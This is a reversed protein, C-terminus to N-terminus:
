RREITNFVGASITTIAGSFFPMVTTGDTTGDSTLFASHAGAVDTNGAPSLWVAFGYQNGTLSVEDNIDRIDFEVTRGAGTATLDGEIYVDVSDGKKIVVGPEFFSVYEKNSYPSIITPYSVDNVVAAINAIDGMGASGSQTWVIISLTIDEPSNATIRIGSFKIDKENIYRTRAGTPDFQSLIATAGGVALTSNITHMPGRLPLIGALPSSAVIGIIQIAPTQSDYSTHDTKMNAYIEYSRTEGAPIRFPTRFVARHKANLSVINGIQLGDGDYLGFSGFAADVGLGVREIEIEKITVDKSGAAFDVSLFLVTSNAPAISSASQGPDSLTLTDAQASIVSALQAAGSDLSPLNTQSVAPAVCLSNLKARTSAGVTGTGKTLDNPALIESAYKEQFKIVALKTRTGFFDSEYGPSGAGTDSIQTAPDSNLFRQLRLVDEGTNGVKLNREWSYPCVSPTDAFVMSFSALFLILASLLSYSVARVVVRRSM